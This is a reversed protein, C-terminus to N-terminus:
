SAVGEHQSVDEITLLAKSDSVALSMIETESAGAPLEGGIAGDHMVVIRDSMGIVEPLESSVMLVAAGQEALERILHHIGARAGVDIGRTPEDFLVIRSDTALWKAVVVKQQNGGSLFRVPNSVVAARLEVSEFTEDLRDDIDVGPGLRAALQRSGMARAPLLGNDRPGKGLLLGETKRDESIYGMGLAIATRPSDITVHDGDVFVDGSSFPEVGFLAQVLETRGSGALGAVGLVEGSRLELSIGALLENSGDIVRVVTNADDAPEERRPPFYSGLERGVMMAVMQDISLSTAPVTDVLWGDKLVSVTDSIELVEPLRHSVYLIGIGEAALGHLIEFLADSEAPSLAATPEDLILVRVDQSLAKAIEVMQQAAVSLDGLRQEPRIVGGVGLRDLLAATDRNMKRHRTWLVSGPERGLFVNQAVTREPLLVLEQYVMGIGHQQANVPHGFSVEQGDMLITGASPHHVGAAVKMLTSKGAGNEGVISHIQGPEVTLSVDDLVTVGSFQKTIGRLELLSSM